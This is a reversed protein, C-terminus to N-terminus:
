DHITAHHCAFCPRSMGRTSSAFESTEVGPVVTLTITPASLQQQQQEAQAPQTTLHVFLQEDAFMAPTM